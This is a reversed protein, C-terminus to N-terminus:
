GIGFTLIVLLAAAVGILGAKLRPHERPSLWAATWALWVSALGSERAMGEWVVGRQWLTTLAGAGVLLTLLLFLTDFLRSPAAAPNVLAGLAESLVRAALGSFVISVISLPPAVLDGRVLGTIRSFGIGTLALAPLLAAADYWPSPRHRIPPAAIAATLTLSLALASDGTIWLPVIAVLLLGGAIWRAVRTARALGDMHRLGDWLALGAATLLAGLSLGILPTAYGV